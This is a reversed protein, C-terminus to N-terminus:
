KQHVIEQISHNSECGEMRQDQKDEKRILLVKDM